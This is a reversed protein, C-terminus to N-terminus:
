GSGKLDRDAHLVFVPPARKMSALPIEKEIAAALDPAHDSEEGVDGRLAAGLGREGLRMIAEFQAHGFAGRFEGARRGHELVPGAALFGDGMEALVGKGAGREAIEISSAIFAILSVSPTSQQERRAMLRSPRSRMTRACVPQGSGSKLPPRTGM